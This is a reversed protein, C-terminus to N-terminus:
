SISKCMPCGGQRERRTQPIPCNVQPFQDTWNRGPKKTGHIKCTVEAFSTRKAKRDAM